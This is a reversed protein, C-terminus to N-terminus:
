RWFPTIVATEGDEPWHPVLTVTEPDLSRPPAASMEETVRAPMETTLTTLAESMETTTTGPLPGSVDRVPSTM